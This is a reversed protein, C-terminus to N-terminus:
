DIQVTHHKQARDKSSEGEQAEIRDSFAEARQSGLDLSLFLSVGRGAGIQPPRRRCRARSRSRLRRQIRGHRLGSFPPAASPTGLPPGWEDASSRRPRQLDAVVRGGLFRESAEIRGDSGRPGATVALVQQWGHDSELQTGMQRNRAHPACCLGLPRALQTPSRRILPVWARGRDSPPSTEQRRARPSCLARPTRESCACLVLRKQERPCFCCCLLLHLHSRRRM